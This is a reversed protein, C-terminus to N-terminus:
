KGAARARRHPCTDPAECAGYIEHRHSTVRLGHQRAVEHQQQEVVENEFEFITGCTVCILHDHHTDGAVLPEFRAQGDQFQREEAVGAEVFLKMSRYVTAYGIGPMRAQVASLVEDISTHGGAEFFAELIQERQRTQKLGRQRIYEALRGQAEAM